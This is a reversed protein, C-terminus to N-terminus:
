QVFHGRKTANRVRIAFSFRFCYRSQSYQPLGTVPYPDGSALNSITPNAGAACPPFRVPLTNVPSLDASNRIRQRYATPNALWGVDVLRSSPNTRFRPYMVGTRLHTGGPSLGVARSNAFQRGYKWLSSCSKDSMFTMSAKPPM